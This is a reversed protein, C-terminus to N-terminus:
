LDGGWSDTLSQWLSHSVSADSSSHETYLFHTVLDNNNNYFSTNGGNWGPGWVANGEYTETQMGEVTCSWREQWVTVRLYGLHKWRWQWRWALVSMGETWEHAEENWMKEQRDGSGSSRTHRVEPWVSQSGALWIIRSPYRSLNWKPIFSIILRYSPNTINILKGFPGSESPSM